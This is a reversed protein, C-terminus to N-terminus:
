YPLHANPLHALWMDVHSLDLGPRQKKFLSLFHTQEGSELVSSPTAESFMSSNRNNGDTGTHTHTHQISVIISGGLKNPGTLHIHTHTEPKCVPQSVSACGMLLRGWGLFLVADKGAEIVGESGRELQKM